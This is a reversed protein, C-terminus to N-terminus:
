IPRKYKNIADKYLKPMDAYQVRVAGTSYSSIDFGEENRRRWISQVQAQIGLKIDDPMTADTYGATYTITVNKDGRPFWGKILGANNDIYTPSVPQGAMYIDAYSMAAGTWSTMMLTQPLLNSAKYGSHASNVLEAVWSSGVANIADVMLTLTAYSVFGLSEATGQDISLDISDSDVVVKAETYTTATNKIWIAEELTTSLRKLDTIPFNGVWLEGDGHGDYRENTYTTSVIDRRCLVKFDEEVGDHLDDVIDPPDGDVATDSTVAQTATASETFGMMLGADSGAHTYAVTNGVGSDITFKDTSTSYSVAFTIAGTGTLTDDANMATALASALDSASYTGDPIDISASGESSTLVLVDNAANVTFIGASDIGLFAYIDARPVIYTTAM